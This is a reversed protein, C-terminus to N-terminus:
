FMMMSLVDCIILDDLVDSDDLVLLDNLLIEEVYLEADLALLDDVLLDVDPLCKVDVLQVELADVDFDEVLADELTDDLFFGAGVDDYEADNPNALVDEIGEVCREVLELLALVDVVEIVDLEEQDLVEQM